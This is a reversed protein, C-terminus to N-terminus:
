IFSALFVPITGTQLLYKLQDATGLGSSPTCPAEATSRPYMHNELTIM